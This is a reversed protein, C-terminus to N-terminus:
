HTNKVYNATFVSNLICVVKIYSNVYSLNYNKQLTCFFMRQSLIIEISTVVKRHNKKRYICVSYEVYM